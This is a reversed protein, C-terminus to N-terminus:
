AYIRFMMKYVAWPLPVRSNMLGKLPSLPPAMRRKLLLKLSSTPSIKQARGAEKRAFVERSAAAKKTRLCADEFSVHQHHYSQAERNYLLQMGAKSLRYGLEIDEYAAV